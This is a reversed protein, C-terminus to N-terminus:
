PLHKFIVRSTAHNKTTLSEGLTRSKCRVFATLTRGGDHHCCFTGVSKKLTGSSAKDGMIFGVQVFSVNPFFLPHAASM